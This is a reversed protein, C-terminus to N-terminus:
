PCVAADAGTGRFSQYTESHRHFSSDVSPGQRSGMSVMVATILSCGSGSDVRMYRKM